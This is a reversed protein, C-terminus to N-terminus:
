IELLSLYASIQKAVRDDFNFNNCNNIYTSYNMEILNIAASLSDSNNCNFVEGTKPLKVLDFHCGVRESVIVPLGHYIAEEVVLGWPESISPLILVDHSSYIEVIDNNEVFDYFKVNSAALTILEKKLIGSGVISLHRGTKNFYTILLELNKIPILRGVYLYKLSRSSKRLNRPRFIKTKIIGVGFTEVVQGKFKLESFVLNQLKGSPMGVNYRNFLIRKILGKIGKTKSEMISSEFQLCNNMSPYFFPLLFLEIESYGGYVIKSFKYKKLQYIIRIFSTIVNRKKLSPSLLIYSFKITNQFDEDNVVQDSLGIFVVHINIKRSLENYLAIKYFAPVNNIILLDLKM